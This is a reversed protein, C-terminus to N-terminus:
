LYIFFIVCEVYTACSAIIGLKKCPFDLEIVGVDGEAGNEFTESFFFFFFFFEGVFLPFNAPLLYPKKHGALTVM